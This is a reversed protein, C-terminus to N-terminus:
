PERAHGARRRQSAGIPLRGAVPSTTVPMITFPRTTRSAWPPKGEQGRGPPALGHQRPQSSHPGRKPTRPGTLLGYASMRFPFSILPRPPAGSLHCYHASCALSGNPQSAGWFIARSTLVIIFHCQPEPMLHSVAPHRSPPRSRAPSRRRQGTM